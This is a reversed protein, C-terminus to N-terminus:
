LISRHMFLAVIHLHQYYKVDHLCGPVGRPLRVRLVDAGIQSCRSNDAAVVGNGAKLYRPRGRFDEAVRPLVHRM